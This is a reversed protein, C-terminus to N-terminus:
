LQTVLAAGGRSHPPCAGRRPLLRALFRKLLRKFRVFGLLGRLLRVRL